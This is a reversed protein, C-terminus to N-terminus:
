GTVRAVKQRLHTLFPEASLDRGSVVRVLEEGNVSRGLPWVTQALWAQLAAEEGAAIRDEIPGIEAAMAEALQASILHGLAYSPFYGFLGEAWHIDQLCGEQDSPPVLGLLREMRLNWEQPLDEVPMGEELLAVELEFRLVIHLGYSLEDAEVRILGARLPNLARWFGEVGGWPDAALGAAFRPHWRKAFAYGRAVRCEWFLSQSEHVGMSTAEGLPWPFWHEDGRPLGQEYLSHGWEHATALFASLPQGPVVRTTIRFDQPGVTCSFPHASRARQCRRGDYGWSSLLEACLEEQLAEPLEPSALAPTSRQHERVRELLTPITAKLPGFLQQLRAKSIDPEFPQALIEWPSSGELEAPALQSAQERRLRILDKLAPAFAAFDNSARAKQWVANGRSQAIALATVLAPDLRRQRELDQRLLQLNRRAAPSSEGDLEGEAALVLEAYAASSQREHLQGALLALQEGRWPAGASPMVTNQDYYLASSISGLLRTQHLHARLADLASGPSPM